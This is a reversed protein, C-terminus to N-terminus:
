LFGGLIESQCFEYSILSLIEHVCKYENWLKINLGVFSKYAFMFGVNISFDNNWFYYDYALMKWFWMVLAMPFM